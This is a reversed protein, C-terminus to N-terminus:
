ETLQLQVNNFRQIQLELNKLIIDFFITKEDKLIQRNLDEDPIGVSDDDSYETDPNM